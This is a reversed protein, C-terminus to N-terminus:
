KRTEQFQTCCLIAWTGERHTTQPPGVDVWGRETFVVIFSSLFHIGKTRKRQFLVRLCPPPVRHLHPFSSAM